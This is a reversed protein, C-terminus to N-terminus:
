RNLFRVTGLLKTVQRELGVTSDAGSCAIFEHWQDTSRPTPVTVALTSNAGPPCGPTPTQLTGHRGGVVVPQGQTVTPVGRPDGNSTWWALISHTNLRALPQRGEILLYGHHHSVVYPPRLAANSLYVITTSFSSSAEPYTHARWSAPYQFAIGSGEFSRVQYRNSGGGCGALLAAVCAAVGLWALSGRSSARVFLM